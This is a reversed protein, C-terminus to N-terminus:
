QIFAREKFENERDVNKNDFDKKVKKLVKIASNLGSVYGKELKRRMRKGKWDFVTRESYCRKSKEKELDSLFRYYFLELENM